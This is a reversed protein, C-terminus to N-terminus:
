HTLWQEIKEKIQNKTIPKKLYDNMGSQFCRERDGSMVNATVAIIPVDKLNELKGDYGKRINRTTDFGNMGPMQCDMFILDVPQGMLIELAQIGNEAIAVQFGYSELIRRLILQNTINDEVILLSPHRDAIAVIDNKIERRENLKKNSAVLDVIVDFRSGKGLESMLTLEGDMLNVFQRCMALGLGLGNYERSFSGDLQAFAAFVKQRDRYDIGCGTDQVSFLYCYTQEDSQEAEDAKSRPVAQVILKVEGNDTFKAANDLLGYLIEHLKKADGDVLLPLGQELDCEFALGKMNCIQSFEHHIENLLKDLHFRQNEIQLTGAKLQAFDLIRDVLKMMERSSNEIGLVDAKARSNLQNDKLMELYGLIGIMPTRLEHSITALFESKLTDAKRLNDIALRQARIKEQRIYKYRDALAVSLLTLEVVGGISSAYRTFFSSPLIGVHDMQLLFVGMLLCTWSIAFLKAQAIGQSWAWYGLIGLSVSLFLVMVAEVRIMISYPFIFCAPVLALCFVTFFQLFKDILPYRDFELFNRAFCCAGWFGLCSALLVSQKVFGVGGPWLYQQMIGELATQFTAWCFVYIVYYLYSKERIFLFLMFNYFAMVFSIGYLGGLMLNAEQNYANFALNNWLTLPVKMSGSTKVRVFFVTTSHPTLTVPIVFYRHDVPRLAAPKMNDILYRHRVRGDSVIYFDVENHLAYALELFREETSSSNNKVAVRFWYPDNGYGLNLEKGTTQWAIADSKELLVNIDFQGDSDAVFEMANSLSVQDDGANTEVVNAAAIGSPMSNSALLPLAYALCLALLVVRTFAARCRNHEIGCKTIFNAQCIISM